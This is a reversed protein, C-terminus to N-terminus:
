ARRVGETVPARFGAATFEVLRRLTGEVDTADCLGGSFMEIDRACRLTHALVGGVFFMRWFVEEAPLDPAANRLAKQFRELIEGFHHKILQPFMSKEEALIRGMLRSFTHATEGQRTMARFPPALFAELVEELLPHGKRECVDLLDLRERNIPGLRRLIVADLLAEKSRFHYHIAALNVKADAIITRLSTGEFGHDAFLREASDLIRQKTDVKIEVTTM